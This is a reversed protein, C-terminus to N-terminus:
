DTFNQYSVLMRGIDLGGGLRKKALQTSDKNQIFNAQIQKNKNLTFLKSGRVFKSPTLTDSVYKM